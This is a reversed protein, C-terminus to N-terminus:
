DKQANSDGKLLEPHEYINGLVEFEECVNSSSYRGDLESPRDKGGLFGRICYCGISKSYSNFLVFSASSKEWTVVQALHSILNSYPFVPKLIDGDWIEKGNKDHLGTFQMLIFEECAFVTNNLYSLLHYEIRGDAYLNYGNDILDQAAWMEKNAKHWARFKIERNM